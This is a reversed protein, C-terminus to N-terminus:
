TWSSGPTPLPQAAVGEGQRVQRRGVPCPRPSAGCGEHCAARRSPMRRQWGAATPSPTSWTAPSPTCRSAETSGSTAAHGTGVGYSADGTHRVTSVFTGGPRLLRRVEGVLTRLEKTSLAMCLPMRAFVADVSADPLPLPERVDHVTTTVREEVREACAAARRQDLGAPSFATAHVTLGERAFYLADRGHGVGLEPVYDAGAERFVTAAHVAPDSPQEGCM